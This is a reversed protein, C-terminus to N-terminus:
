NNNIIWKYLIAISMDQFSEEDEESIYNKCGYKLMYECRENDKIMVELQARTIFNPNIVILKFVIRVFIELDKRRLVGFLNGDVIRKVILGILNCDLRLTESLNRVLTALIKLVAGLVVEEKAKLNNVVDYLWSLLGYSNCLLKRGSVMGCAKDIVSLVLIKTDLDPVCSSFLEMIFKFAMSRLAVSFDEERRLGDRLIELIFARTEKFNVDSNHLFTYLEPIRSLDPCLKANLYQSLPVYLNNLPKTLILAMRAWFIASFTNLKNDDLVATGRCVAEVFRLWLLRGKSGQRAEIHYHLRSLVHCSAKRVEEDSSSLAVITLSLAGSLVFRYTAAENEPALLSSFLPLFFRLDYVDGPDCGDAPKEVTLSTDLSFNKITNFVLDERLIDLIDGMKPQRWLSKQVDQRVSYHTTAATGWLFPKFDYFNTKNANKEYMQLLILLFQDSSSTTAHYAALFVPVHSRQMLNTWRQCLTLILSLLEKKCSSDKALVVDLFESHSSLMDLLLRAENEEFDILAVFSTLTEVFICNTAVGFKLSFKCFLEFASNECISRYPFKKYEEEALLRSISAKILGFAKELRKWDDESKEKKKFGSNTLHIFSLLANSIRTEEVDKEELIKMFIAQLAQLLFLEFSDCKVVKELYLKCDELPMFKTILLPIVENYTEFYPGAKNPKQLAKLITPKFHNYAAELIEDSAKNRISASLLSLMLGKKQSVTSIHKFFVDAFDSRKSLLFNAFSATEKSIENKLLISEFLEGSVEKLQHHYKAFYRKAIALLSTADYQEFSTNLFTLLQVISTIIEDNLPDFTNSKLIESLGYTILNCFFPVFEPDLNNVEVKSAYTLVEVCHKHELGIVELIDFVYNIKHLRKSPKRLVRKLTLVLKGRFQQLHKELANGLNLSKFYNIVDIVFSTSLNQHLPSFRELLTPNELIGLGSEDTLLRKIIEECNKLHNENLEANLNTFYFLAQNLCSRSLGPRKNFEGEYNELFEKLDGELFARSLNQAVELKIKNLTAKEGLAWAKVYNLVHKPVLKQHSEHLIIGYFLGPQTQHHLLNILVSSFYSRFNSDLEVTELYNFAALLLPSLSRHKIILQSSGLTADGELNELIETFNSLEATSGSAEVFEPMKSLYKFINKSALRLIEVFTVSTSNELSLLDFIANIWVDIEESCGEFIATNRILLILTAEAGKDKSKFYYDLILPLVLGFLDTETAFMAPECKVFLKVANIKLVIKTEDPIVDIDKLFTGLNIENLNHLLQPCTSEYEELLQLTAELNKAITYDGFADSSSWDSMVSQVKLFNRAMHEILLNKLSRFDHPKLWTKAALMYKKLAKTAELLLLLVNYKIVPTKYICDSPIVTKLISVPAVLSSIVQYLQNVSLDHAYFEIKEPGLEKILLRAYKMANLWKTTTRLELFSKLNNWVVKTLDPCAGCIKTVLESAYSHEWPRELGDLVTCVLNNSSKKSLGVHKDKFIVGHTHSTCLLLLFDHVAESVRQKDDENIPIIQMQKKKSTINQPGRWNYLNVIHKVVPTSFTNMKQTKSIFPNQLIYTKLTVMVMAVIEPHDYQLGNIISTLLGKKELLVLIVHHEGEVLFSMLFNIFCSRVSDKEVNPKTIVELTAVNFNVHLLIEKALSKSFTVITTLLKLIAKREHSAASLGLMKNILAIHTNFFYRCAEDSASQYQAYKTVIQLLVYNVAELILSPPVDNSTELLQLLELCTGGGQLYEYVCDQTTDRKCLEVFLRLAALRESTLLNSRLEKASFLKIKKTPAEDSTKNASEESMRKLIM